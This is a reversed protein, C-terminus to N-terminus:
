QQYTQQRAMNQNAYQQMQMGMNQNVQGQMTALQQKLLEKKDEDTENSMQMEMLRLQGKGKTLPNEKDYDTPFMLALDSYTMDIDLADHKNVTRNICSRIPCIICLCAFLVILALM